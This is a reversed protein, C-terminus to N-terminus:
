NASAATAGPNCLLYLNAFPNVPPNQGPLGQHIQFHLHPGTSNGTSGVYGIVDGALVIRDEGEYASFHAYYYSMGDVGTLWAGNGGAGGIDHRMFGAVVAVVPTGPLAAMDIGTHFGGPRPVAFDDTFASVGKVPCVSANSPVDTGHKADGVVLAQVKDYAETAIQLRKQMLDRLPAMDALTKELDAKQSRLDAERAALEAVAAKLKAAADLDHAGLTDTLHAARLGDEVNEADMASEFAATEGHQVYLQAARQKVITKLEAARGRLEPIRAETDAIHTRLTAEQTETAAIRGSIEIAEAQAADLRQRALTLPDRAPEDAHAAIPWLAVVGLAIILAAM